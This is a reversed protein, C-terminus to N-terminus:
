PGVDDPHTRHDNTLVSAPQTGAKTADTEGNTAVGLLAAALAPVPVLCRRGVRLSPISGARVGEYATARAIGYLAAVEEVTATARRALPGMAQDVIERLVERRDDAHAGSLADLTV